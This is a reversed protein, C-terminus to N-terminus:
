PEAVETKEGTTRDIHITAQRPRTGGGPFEHDGEHGLELLCRLLRKGEYTVRRCGEEPELRAAPSPPLRGAERLEPEIDAWEPM